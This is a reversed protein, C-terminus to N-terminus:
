WTSRGSSPRVSITRTTSPARAMCATRRPWRRTTSSPIPRARQRDGVPQGVAQRAGGHRGRVDAGSPLRPQQAHDTLLPIRHHAATWLIGPAYNLDGDSQINVSLRGHKRNALAAGVAAPAGYGIGYAGSWGIYQYHKTVDWLRLPWNQVFTADSVLSWDETKIQNWLEMSLRATSIPSADWGVAAQSMALDFAARAAEALRAGRQEFLRKRDPTILKRCAEILSPLTAEADAVIALDVENYRGFDQYNSKTLLEHSSITATKAGAKTIRRSEMGM